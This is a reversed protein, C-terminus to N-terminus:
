SLLIKHDKIVTKSEISSVKYNSQQNKCITNILHVIEMKPKKKGTSFLFDSPKEPNKKKYELFERAKM